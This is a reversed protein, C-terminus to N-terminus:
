LRAHKLRLAHDLFITTTTLELDHSLPSVVGGVPILHHANPLAGLWKGFKMSCLSVLGDNKEHSDFAQSTKELLYGFWDSLSTPSSGFSGWSYLRKDHYYHPGEQCWNSSLGHPYRQNFDRLASTTLSELAMWANQWGFYGSLAGISFGFINAFATAIYAGIPNESLKEYIVDAVKSGRHPSGITTVSAVSDPYNELVYRADLGGHSHGILNYKEHGWMLLQQYLQEGREHTSNAQSVHAIYVKAGCAELNQPIDGWYSMSGIDGGFGFLGHSLVIPYTTSCNEHSSKLSLSLIFILFVSLKM